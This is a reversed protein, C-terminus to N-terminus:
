RSRRRSVSSWASRRSTSASRRAGSRSSYGGRAGCPPSPSPRVAQARLPAATRASRRASARTPPRGGPSPSGADRLLPLTALALVAHGLFAAELGFRESLLGGVIPGITMGFRSAGGVMSMARGRQEYPVADAVYALRTTAWIAIGVGLVGIGGFLALPGVPLGLMLAGAASVVAGLAMARRGGIRAALLGAPINAAMQSLGQVAVLAGILGVELGQASAYLPVAPGLMSYGAAHILTPLYASRLM